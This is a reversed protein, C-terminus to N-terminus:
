LAEGPAQDTVRGISVWGESVCRDMCIVIRDCYGAWGNGWRWAGRLSHMGETEADIGGRRNAIGLLQREKRLAITYSEEM